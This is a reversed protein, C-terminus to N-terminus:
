YNVFSAVGHITYLLFLAPLGLLQFTLDIVPSSPSATSDDMGYSSKELVQLIQQLQLLLASNEEISELDSVCTEKLM